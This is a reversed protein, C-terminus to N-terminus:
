NSNERPAPALLGVAGTIFAASSESISGPNEVVSNVTNTVLNAGDVDIQGATVKDMQDSTLYTPEEAQVASAMGIFALGAALLIRM